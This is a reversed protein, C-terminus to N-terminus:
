RPPHRGHRRHLRGRDVRRGHPPAVRHDTGVARRQDPPTPHRHREVALPPPGPGVIGVVIWIAPGVVLVLALLNAGRFLVERIRRGRTKPYAVNTETM